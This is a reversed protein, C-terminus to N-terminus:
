LFCEGNLFKELFKSEFVERKVRDETSPLFNKLSVLSSAEKGCPRILQFTALDNEANLAFGFSTFFSKANIGFSVLKGTTGPGLYLGPSEADGKTVLGWTDWISQILADELLALYKGLSLNRKKLDIHLYCVWQGPEHATFDGGRSVPLWNVKKEPLDSPLVLLNEQKANIGSTLTPPHELFLICENRKARVKVQFDLYKQYPVLGGM